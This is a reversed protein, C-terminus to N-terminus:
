GSQREASSITNDKAFCPLCIMAYFDKSPSLWPCCLFGAFREFVPLFCSMVCFFITRVTNINKIILAIEIIARNTAGSVAAKASFLLQLAQSHQQWFPFLLGLAAQWSFQQSSHLLFQLAFISDVLLLFLLTDPYTEDM